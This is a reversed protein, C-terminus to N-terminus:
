SLNSSAFNYLRFKWKKHINEMNKMVTYDLIFIRVHILINWSSMEM